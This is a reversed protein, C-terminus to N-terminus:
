DSRVHNADTRARFPPVPALTSPPERSRRRTGRQVGASRPLLSSFRSTNPAERATGREYISRERGGKKRPPQWSRVRRVKGDSVAVRPGRLRRPTAPAGRGRLRRDGPRATGSPRD